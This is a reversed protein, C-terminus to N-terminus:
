YTWGITLADAGDRLGHAADVRLIGPTGPIRIRLGGGLDTQLPGNAAIARRTAQAVDVFAAAGIRIISPRGLWRRGEISAYRLTRGFTSASDIVGEDLLPHARLLQPRARGDGAGNWLTFPARESARHAGAVVDYSWGVEPTRSRVHARVGVSNFGEAFATSAVPTWTMAEGILAIRDDFLRREISGGVFAARRGGNWSDLGGSISCRVNPLIWDSVTLGGHTRTERTSTGAIASSSTEAEWSGDVRWVGPLGAVRPAAFAVAVRPRGSWWRWSATWMGGQGTLQPVAVAIEREVAAHAATATWEAYGRPMTAREALAIDVAAFGDEGPRLALRSSVRDPLDELRHRARIFADATLLAGSRLGIADVIAQYRSRTLGAIRVTDLTPQGIANWARLAAVAEDQMFLASGLVTSAYSDDPSRALARRALAASERWRKQAFRVGALERMLAPSEDCQPRLAGLVEDASALGRQQVDAVARQVATECPDVSAAAPPLAADPETVIRTTTTSDGPLIAVAWRGSPQWLADFRELTMRRRPGWSPDHLLVADDAVGNVVVYHYQIGRDALLVVLPQRAELRDRLWAMASTPPSDERLEVRWGRTRIARILVDTAIGAAGRRREVLAAFQAPDAHKDGWYRFVMAAAAGGCLADTQPLYPVDLTATTDDAASAALPSEGAAARLSCSAPGGGHPSGRDPVAAMECRISLPALAAILSVAAALAGIM